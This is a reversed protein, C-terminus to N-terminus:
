PIEPCSVPMGYQYGASEAISQWLVVDDDDIDGDLDLDGHWARPHKPPNYRNNVVTLGDDDDIIGDMNLDALCPRLTPATLDDYYVWRIMEMSEDWIDIRAAGWVWPTFGRELFNAIDDRDFIRRPDPDDPDEYYSFGVNIEGTISSIDWTRDKDVSHTELREVAIVWPHNAVRLEDLDGSPEYNNAGDIGSSIKTMVPAEGSIYLEDFAPHARLRHLSDSRIEPDYNGENPRVIGGVHDFVFETVGLEAWPNINRYMTVADDRRDADLPDESHFASWPDGTRFGVYIGVTAHQRNAIWWALGGASGDNTSDDQLSARLQEDLSWWCANTLDAPLEEHFGAPRDIIFRRFGLNYGQELLALLMDVADVIGNDATTTWNGPVPPIAVNLPVNNNGMEFGNDTRDRWWGRRGLSLPDNDSGTFSLIVYGPRLDPTYGTAGNEPAKDIKHTGTYLDIARYGAPYPDFPPDQDDLMLGNAGSLSVGVIGLSGALACLAIWRVRRGCISM